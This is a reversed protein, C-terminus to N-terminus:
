AAVLRARVAGCEVVALGAVLRVEISLRLAAAMCECLGPSLGRRGLLWAVVFSQSLGVRRALGAGSLEGVAIRRRAEVALADSVESYRIVRGMGM